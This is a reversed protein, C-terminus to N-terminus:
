PEADRVLVWVRRGTSGHVIQPRLGLARASDPFSTEATFALRYGGLADHVAARFFRTADNDEQAHQRIASSARGEEFDEALFRTAFGEPIILVDPARAQVESYPVELEVAGLLPNRRRIPRDSVRQVTYPADGSLDFHPLYVLLGYTEVVSGEPLEALWDVVENRADGWQTLHVSFTHLAAWGAVVCLAVLVAGRTWTRARALELLAAAAVGAYLALFFGLPLVFRHECRAVILTFFVLSSLGAVLPALRWARGPPGGEGRRVAAVVVGLWVLAVAPWPWFFDAQGALIDRLNAAVGTLGAEYQRWDQSSSGTLEGLRKVFGTPNLFAASLLGWALLGTLASRAALRWHDVALGLARQTRPVWWLALPLLAVFSAYAQDKTAVACAVFVAFLRYDRREGRQAVLLLRDVALATWMLYPGDLNTVRGYYAVTLCTAAFVAAWRAAARGFLRRGVRALALVAVAMMFVALLKAVVAVATMVPVSLLRAMLADMTFSGASLAAPILIPLCLIGLILYHFLPYRHGDGPTLNFAIGGFLDRPAVGDNEWSWSGPLDWGVALLQFAVFALVLGAVVRDDAFLARTGGAIARLLRRM